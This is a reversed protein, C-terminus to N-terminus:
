GPGRERTSIEGEIASNLEEVSTGWAAAPMSHLTASSFATDALDKQQPLDVGKPAAEAASVVTDLGTRFQAAVADAFACGCADCYAFLAGTDRRRLVIVETGCGVPCCESVVFLLDPM